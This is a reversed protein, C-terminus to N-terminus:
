SGELRRGCWPCFHYGKEKFHMTNDGFGGNCSSCGKSQENEHRLATIAKNIANNLGGWCADAHSQLENIAEERTM